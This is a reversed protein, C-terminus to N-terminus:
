FVLGRIFSFQAVQSFAKYSPFNCIEPFVRLRFAYVGEMTALLTFEQKKRAASILYDLASIEKGM